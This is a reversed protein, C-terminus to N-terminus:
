RCTRVQHAAVARRAATRGSTTRGSLRGRARHARRRFGRRPRRANRADGLVTLSLSGHRHALARLLPSRRHVSLARALDRAMSRPRARPLDGGPCRRTARGHRGEDRSTRRLEAACAEALKRYTTIKGGFISLVPRAIRGRRRRARRAEARLRADGRVSGDRRRRLAAARRQLDLRHRSRSLPQELYANALTSCITSRTTPSARTRRLRRGAVDTTGILSYREQYPIVFVIRNDANQLIYAHEGAHVRPVVIHSGKVHRVSRAPRRTADVDDLVDKVWPGPPTSSRARADGRRPRRRRRLRRAGCAM